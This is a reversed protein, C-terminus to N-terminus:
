GDVVLSSYGRMQPRRRGAGSIVFPSTNVEKNTLNKSVGGLESVLLQVNEARGRRAEFVIATSLAVLRYDLECIDDQEVLEQLQRMGEVRLIMDDNPVANTAPIPYVRIHPAKDFDELAWLYPYSSTEGKDSDFQNFVGTSIGRDNTLTLWRSSFKQLVREIRSTDFDEPIPYYEQGAAEPIDFRFQLFEFRYEDQLNLIQDNIVSKFQENLANNSSDTTDNIYIKVKRVVEALTKGSGASM